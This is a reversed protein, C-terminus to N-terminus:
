LLLGRSHQNHFPFYGIDSLNLRVFVNLFLAFVTEDVALIRFAQLGSTIM